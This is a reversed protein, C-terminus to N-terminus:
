GLWASIVHLHFVQMGTKRMTCGATCCRVVPDKRTARQKAHGKEVIETSTDLANELLKQGASWSMAKASEKGRGSPAKSGIRRTLSDNEPRDGACLELLALSGLSWSLHDLSAFIVPLDQAVGM